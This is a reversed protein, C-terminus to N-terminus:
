NKHKELKVYAKRKIIFYIMLYVGLVFLIVMFTLIYNLSKFRDEISIINKGNVNLEFVNNFNVDDIRRYWIDIVDGKKVTELVEIWKDRENQDIFYSSNDIVIEIGVKKLYKSPGFKSTSKQLYIGKAIKEVSGHTFNYNSKTGTGSIKFFGIVIMGLALIIIGIANNYRIGDAITKRLIEKLYM